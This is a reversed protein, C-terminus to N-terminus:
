RSRHVDEYEAASKGRCVAFDSSFNIYVIKDNMYGCTKVLGQNTHGTELM